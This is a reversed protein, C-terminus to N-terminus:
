IVTILTIIATSAINNRVHLMILTHATTIYAIGNIHLTPPSHSEETQKLLM